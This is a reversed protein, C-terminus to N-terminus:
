GTTEDSGTVYITSWGTMLTGSTLFPQISTQQHSPVKQTLWKFVSLMNWKYTLFVSYMLYSIKFVFILFIFQVSEM